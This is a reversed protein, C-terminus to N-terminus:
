STEDTHSALEKIALRASKACQAIAADQYGRPAYVCDYTELFALLAVQMDLFMSSDDVLRTNSSHTGLKQTERSEKISTM